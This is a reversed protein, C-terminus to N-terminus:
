DNYDLKRELVVTHEGPGLHQQMGLQHCHDGTQGPQLEWAGGLAHRPTVHRTEEGAPWRFDM